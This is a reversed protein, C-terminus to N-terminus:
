KKGRPKRQKKSNSSEEDKDLYRYTRATAEMTMRSDDGPKAKSSLTLDHLTVIRSLAATASAFNGFQHYNGKVRIQIPLEAYFEKPTEAEPKFLEFELGSIIGIRSIDVLLGAVETEGPLQQLLAGFSRQMELMQEKYAALNVAKAQKTEFEQKLTTEKQQAAELELLQDSTDLYYGAFLLTTCLLLIVIAKAAIPWSGINNPDLNNLDKLDSLNM